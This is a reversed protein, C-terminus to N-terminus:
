KIQRPSGTAIEIEKGLDRAIAVRKFHVRDGQDVVAVRLRKQDLILASAPISLLQADSALNLLVSAYSGARLEGKSDDM